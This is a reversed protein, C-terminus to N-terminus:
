QITKLAMQQKSSMEKLSNLYHEPTKYRKSPLQNSRDESFTTNLPNNRSDILKQTLSTDHSAKHAFAVSKPKLSERPTEDSCDLKLFTALQLFCTSFKPSSNLTQEEEFLKLYNDKFLREFKQNTKIIQIQKQTLIQFDQLNEVKLRVIHDFMEM